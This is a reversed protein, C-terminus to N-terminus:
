DADNYHQMELFKIYSKEVESKCEKRTIGFRSEGCYKEAIHFDQRALKTRLLHYYKEPAECFDEYQIEIKREDAVHELAKEIASNTYYIQGAAQMAPDELQILEKMEPIRFSYWEKIDLMQRKRAELVSVINSCPERKTHIFIVTDLISDLFGINYNAIMGKMALPKHFVDAIGMLEKVFTERDFVKALECDPMYDMDLEAYPFFRRWFFWFENPSMAGQTKGNESKYVIDRSFVDTLENRFNFVPDLLLRQIKAGIVPAKYFRSMLNSPCVFEGTNSLWQTMLTTGSRLAGMVLIVPYNRTVKRLLQQEAILLDDNIEKLYAELEINKQFKKHRKEM